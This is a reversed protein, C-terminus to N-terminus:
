EGNGAEYESCYADKHRSQKGLLCSGYEPPNFGEWKKCSECVPHPKIKHLFSIFEKAAEDMDGKVEIIFKNDKFDFSASNGDKLIVLPIANTDTTFSQEM